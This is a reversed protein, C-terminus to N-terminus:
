ALPKKRISKHDRPLHSPTPGQKEVQILSRKRAVGKLTYTRTAGITAGVASALARINQLASGGQEEDPSSVAQLILSGGVKLFPTALECAAPPDAVARCFALDFQGRFEPAHALREARARLVITDALDLEHGLTKLFSVKKANNDVLTVRWPPRLIKAVIGPFGAGSGIDIVRASADDSTLDGAFRCALVSDAFLEVAARAPEITGVLRVRPNWKCLLEYHLCLTDLEGGSLEAGLRKTEDILASRFQDPKM